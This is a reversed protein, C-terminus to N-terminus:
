FAVGGAIEDAIEAFCELLLPNFAGCEGGMIMKVATDHDYADKYVRKSVLADYVDAISVIQASIPIEDGKLGDPYGKGDWREHHSRCIRCAYAILKEGQYIGLKRLMSEGIITHTKMIEFEEPTLRGPKNLIKEDICIKGIDHLASATSILFRDRKELGYRDTKEMLKDILLGSLNYMHVVHMGSEGNRFEVIQSLISIMMRNNKEREFIQDTVMSVLRRQRINTRIVNFIKRYVVNADFPRRIYDAVNMDYARRVSESSEDGTIVIVSRGRQARQREYVRTRRVRRAQAYYPRAARRQNRQRTQRSDIAENGDSAELIEFNGGLVHVLLERNFASDDAILVTIAKDSADDSLIETDTVITNKTRKAFYMLRDANAVAEEITVNHAITGGMSIGLESFFLGPRKSKVLRRFETLRAAFEREGATKCVFLFEDGGYRVFIEDNGLCSEVANAFSVLVADGAKHGYLDNYVKFDDIDFMAVGVGDLIEGNNLMEDYYRRNLAGTLSDRYAKDGSKAISTILEASAVDVFKEDFKEVMEIVHPKGDIEVYRSIVCFAEDGCLEIKNKQTKGALAKASVCNECPSPKKWIEYCACSGNKADGAKQRRM